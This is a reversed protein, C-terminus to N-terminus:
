GALDKQYLSLQKDEVDLNEPVRSLMLLTRM